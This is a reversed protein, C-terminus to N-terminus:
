RRAKAKGFSGEAMARVTDRVDEPWAETLELFLARDGRYLARSAEEYGAEDGAMRTMFHDAAHRAALRAGEGSADARAADVLRRVAASAGGPQAALWEWHRPLLTVERATVGLKPRGRGRPEAADEALAIDVVKGTAGDYVHVRRGKPGMSWLAQVVDDQPGSAVLKRGDFAYYIRETM